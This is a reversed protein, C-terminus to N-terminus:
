LCYPELSANNYVCANNRGCDIKKSVSKNSDCRLVWRHTDDDCWGEGVSPCRDGPRPSRAVIKRTTLKRTALKAPPQQSPGCEANCVAKGDQMECCGPKWCKSDTQWIGYENCFKSVYAAADCKWEGPHCEVEKDCYANGASGVHCAGTKFCTEVAKWGQSSCVMVSVNADDCKNTGLQCNLATACLATPLVAFLLGVKPLQM